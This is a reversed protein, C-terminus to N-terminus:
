ALARRRRLALALKGLECAWLVSSGVALCRLWDGAGLPVTSFGRQLVPVHVVALQLAISLLIAAWLWRNRFLGAFASQEESRASLVIFLQFFVLTTFAMTRAHPLTGSGEILGGPLSADLM